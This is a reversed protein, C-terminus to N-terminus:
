RITMPYQFKTMPQNPEQLPAYLINIHINQTTKVKISPQEKNAELKTFIKKKIENQPETM